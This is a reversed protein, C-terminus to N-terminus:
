QLETLAQTVEDIARQLQKRTRDDATTDRVESLLERVIGACQLMRAAARLGRRDRPLRMGKGVPAEGVAALLLARAFGAASQGCRAAMAVVAEKAKTSGLDVDIRRDVPVGM